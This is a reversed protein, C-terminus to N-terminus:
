YLVTFLTNITDEVWEESVYGESSLQESLLNVYRKYINFLIDLDVLTYERLNEGERKGYDKLYDVVTEFLDLRVNDPFLSEEIQAATPFEYTTSVQPVEHVFEYIKHIWHKRKSEDNIIQIKAMRKVIPITYNSLESQIEELTLKQM